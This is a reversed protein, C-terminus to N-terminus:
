DMTFSLPWDALLQLASESTLGTRLPTISVHGAAIANCDSGPLDAFGNEGGGIWFYSRGRPDTKKVIGEGYHRKGQFTLSIGSIVGSPINVNLFIGSPLGISVVTNILYTVVASSRALDDFTFERADLSFAISPFGMLAAEMAACVTGSYTIDDGLNAGLNIGSVVLRPRGDVLGHVGLNVCDTPTGDVSFVGSRIEDARLPSDLTLAHGIASRNRDPAIVVVSGLDSASDALAALGPSHVGDDNTVLVFSV